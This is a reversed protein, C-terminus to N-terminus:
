KYYVKINIGGDGTGDVLIEYEGEYFKKKDVDVYRGTKKKTYSMIEKVKETSIAQKLITAAEECQKDFDRYYHTPNLILICHTEDIITRGYVDLFKETVFCWSDEDENVLRTNPAVVSFPGAKYVKSETKPGKGNRIYVRRARSDWKVEAGLAEGIFRVPVYTRGSKLTAQTDLEKLVGNVLMEKKGIQLTVIKDGDKITVEQKKSNWDVTAELQESVFRVPVILRGAKDLFPDGHPFKVEIGNVIVVIPFEDGLVTGILLVVTFLMVIFSMIKRKIM